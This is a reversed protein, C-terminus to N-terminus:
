GGESGLEAGVEEEAWCAEVGEVTGVLSLSFSCGEGALTTSTSTSFVVSTTWNFFFFFSFSCSFFPPFSFSVEAYSWRLGLFLYDNKFNPEFTIPEEKKKENYKM